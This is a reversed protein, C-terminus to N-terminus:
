LFNLHKKLQEKQLATWKHITYYNMFSTKHARQQCLYESLQAAPAALRGNTSLMADFLHNILQEDCHGLSKLASFANNRTRFEWADSAYYVLRDISKEKNVNHSAALEHWKINVSNNM